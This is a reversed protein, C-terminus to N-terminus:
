LYVHIGELYGATVVTRLAQDQAEMTSTENISWLEARLAGVM